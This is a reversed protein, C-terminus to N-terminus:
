VIGGSEGTMIPGFGAGGGRMIITPAGRGGMNIFPLGWCPGWWGMDLCICICSGM